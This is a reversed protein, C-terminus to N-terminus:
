VSIVQSQTWHKLLAMPSKIIVISLIVAPTILFFRALIQKKSLNKTTLSIIKLHWARMGVTQGGKQYSIFYYGCLILVLTLQYTISSPPIAAGHRFFLCILTFLFFLALLIMGDYILAGVYRIYFM